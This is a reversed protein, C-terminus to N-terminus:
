FPMRSVEQYAEVIKNRVQLMLQFALDAKEVAIMAKHIDEGNGQLMDAVKKQGDAELNQVQDMMDQLTEFFKSGDAAPKSVEAQPNVGGARPLGSIANNM